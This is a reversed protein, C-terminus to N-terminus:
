RSPVEEHSLLAFKPIKSMSPFYSYTTFFGSYYIVIKQNVLICQIASRRMSSLVLRGAIFFRSQAMGAAGKGRFFTDIM